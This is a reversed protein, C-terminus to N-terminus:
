LDVPREAERNNRELMERVLRALEKQENSLRNAAERKLNGDSVNDAVDAEFMRTRGNLDAQLWRLMKVEALEILPPKQPQQGGEGGGGGDDDQQEEEPPPEPQERLIDLVHRMRTLAALELNQTTRGTQHQSLASGAQRMDGAAGGLALQFVARNEVEAMADDLETAIKNEQEALGELRKAEADGFNGRNERFLEMAITQELTQQQRPILVDLVEALRDLVKQQKEGELEAIRRNVEQEAQEIERRTQDLRQDRQEPTEGQRPAATNSAQKTQESAADATLRSMEQALNKLDESLKRQEDATEANSAQQKLGAMQKLMERLREALEGPDTPTRDRLRDIMERLANAATLQTEAARGAQQQDLDQAASSLQTAVSLTDAVNIASSLRAAFDDSVASSGAMQRMSQLLKDFRRSLESQDTALRQFQQRSVPVVSRDSTAQLNQRVAALSGERATRQDQELRLLERIFREADSWANARDILEEIKQIVTQQEGDLAAFTGTLSERAEDPLTQGVHPEITKRATTLTQEAAPLSTKGLQVLADAISQLQEVLQPQALQNITLQELLHHIEAVAGGPDGLLTREVTQQALRAALLTDLSKRSADPNNAVQQSQERAARQDALAQELLRLIDAQDSALRSEFEAPTIVTIRRPVTTTTQQPLYDSAEAHVELVAGVPLGLAEINLETALQQRDLAEGVAPLAERTPPEPPAQYLEVFPNMQAPPGELGVARLNLHVNSLALNDAAEVALPVIATQVVFLEATSGQWAITPPSDAVVEMAPLEVSGALQKASTLELTARVLKSRDTTTAMWGGTSLAVGKNDPATLDLLLPEGLAGEVTASVLPETATGTLQMQSGTLVRLGRTVPTSALGSYKPPEVTLKLEAMAPPDVVQVKTWPMSYHDGGTARYEFDRRVNERRAVMTTGVQQMWTQETRWRGGDQYRYEFAVEDPLSGSTDTLSAEFTEGRALLTPTQDFQLNHRRPWELNNWPAVLRAVSTWLSQPALLALVVVLVATAGAMALTRGHTRSTAVQESPVTELLATADAVVARRMPASGATPDDEEQGLFELASALRDGLQPFAQQLHQAASLDSWQQSRWWRILKYAMAGVGGILALSLLVRLGRDVPRVMFDVLGAVLLGLLAAVLLWCVLEVAARRNWRERVQVVRQQLPHSM